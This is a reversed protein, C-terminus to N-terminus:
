RSKKANAGKSRKKRNRQRSLLESLSAPTTGLLAAADKRGLGLGEILTAQEAIPKDRMGGAALCIFCLARAIVGDWQDPNPSPARNATSKTM